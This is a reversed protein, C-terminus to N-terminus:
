VQLSAIAISNSLTTILLTFKIDEWIGKIQVDIHWSLVKLHVMQSTLQIDAPDDCTDTKDSYHWWRTVTPWCWTSSGWLLWVPTRWASVLWVLSRWDGRDLLPLLVAQQSRTPLLLTQVVIGLLPPVCLTWLRVSGLCTFSWCLSSSSLGPARGICVYVFACVYLSKTSLYINTEGFWM